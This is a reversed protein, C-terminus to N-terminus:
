FPSSTIHRYYDPLIDSIYTHHYSQSIQSFVMEARKRKRNPPFTAYYLLPLSTTITSISQHSTVPLHIHYFTM